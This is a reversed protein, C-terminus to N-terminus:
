DKNPVTPYVTPCLVILPFSFSNVIKLEAVRETWSRTGVAAERGGQVTVGVCRQHGPGGATGDKVVVGRRLGEVHHVPLRAEGAPGGAVDAAQAASLSVLDADASLSAVAGARGLVPVPDRCTASSRKM